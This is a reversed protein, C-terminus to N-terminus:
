QFGNPYQHRRLRANREEHIIIDLLNEYDNYKDVGIQTINHLVFCSLIVNTVYEIDNDLRKILCRWRGKLLGFEREVIVRASSLSKSFKKQTDTLRINSPYPKVLWTKSSLSRRRFTIIKCTITMEEIIKEPRTLVENTECKQYLTTARLIRADHVSGPFSTSVDSFMLNSGVVAQLNITYKQKRWFNDLKSESSPALTEIHTGDVAAVVQPISCDTFEQFSTTALATELATVPFKIFTPALQVIHNIGDQSIKIVISKEVGFDKSVFRYSNRTSLRWIVIALRKEVKIAESFPHWSATFKRWNFRIFISSDWRNNPIGKKM